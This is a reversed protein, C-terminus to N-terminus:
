LTQAVAGGARGLLEEHLPLIFGWGFRRGGRRSWLRSRQEIPRQRLETVFRPEEVQDAVEHDKVGTLLLHWPRVLKKAHLRRLFANRLALAADDPVGLAAALADQHHEDGLPQELM